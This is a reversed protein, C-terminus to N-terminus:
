SIKCLLKAEEEDPIGMWIGLTDNVAALRKQLEKSEIGRNSKLSEAKELRTEVLESVAEYIADREGSSLELADFVITDLTRRDPSPHLADWFTSALLESNNFAIASPNVCPLDSVEYRQIKLLGGVLILDVQLM